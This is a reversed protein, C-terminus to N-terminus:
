RWGLTSSQITKSINELECSERSRRDLISPMLTRGAFPRLEERSASRSSDGFHLPPSQLERLAGGQMDNRACTTFCDGKSVPSQKTATMTKPPHLLAACESKV